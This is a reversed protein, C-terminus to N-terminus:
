RLAALRLTDRSVLRIALSPLYGGSAAQWRLAACAASEVDDDITAGCRPAGCAHAFRSEASSSRLVVAHRRKRHRASEIPRLATTTKDCSFCSTRDYTTISIKSFRSSCPKVAAQPFPTVRHIRDHIQRTVFPKLHFARALLRFKGIRVTRLSDSTRAHACARRSAVLAFMGRTTEVRQAGIQVNGVAGIARLHLYRRCERTLVKNRGRIVTSNESRKRPSRSNM